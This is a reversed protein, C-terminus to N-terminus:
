IKFEKSQKIIGAYMMLEQLEHIYTIDMEIRIPYESNADPSFVVFYWRKGNENGEHPYIAVCESYDILGDEDSRKTYEALIYGETEECYQFGNLKLFHTNIEVPEVEHLSIYHMYSENESLHYGIKKKTLTSIRILIGNNKIRVIGGHTLNNIKMIM